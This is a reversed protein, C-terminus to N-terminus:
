GFEIIDWSFDIENFYSAGNFENLLDDIHPLPYNNKMSIKNLDHYDLCMRLKRSGKQGCVHYTDM